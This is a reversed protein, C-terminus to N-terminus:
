LSYLLACAGICASGHVTFHWYDGTCPHNSLNTIKYIYVIWGVCTWYIFLAPCLQRTSAELMTALLLSHAYITDISRILGFNKYKNQSYHNCISLITMLFFAPGTWHLLYIGYVFVSLFFFSSYVLLM